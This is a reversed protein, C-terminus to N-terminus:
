SLDEEPAEGPFVSHSRWTPDPLKQPARGCVTLSARILWREPFAGRSLGLAM